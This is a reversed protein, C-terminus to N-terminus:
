PRVFVFYALAGAVIAAFSALGVIRGAQRTGVTYTMGAKVITNVGCAIGIGSVASAIAITQDGSMRSLSLTIADVDAIGSLAALLNLGTEGAYTTVLKALFSILAILAALKLATGLDFPSKLDLDPHESPRGRQLYLIAGGAILLVACAVGMPWILPIILAPNIASAIVVVRAVMVAGSLLIGSALLTSAPPNDKALKALTLTTATSSTLGGAMAAMAVGAQSGMIRIAIYGVFSIGAIIIAFLWIRAPNISGLPDVPKNPLLPLLLFSMALLILAARIELWTLTKLWTHLPRKLALILTVAVAASIAIQVNGLVTYAGLAFTLLAAVVGTVSFNREEKAELWAFASFGAAFAIFAFGLFTTHTHQALVASIAGLLSSLGYTRLGATREGEAEERQQWGRELGVLLGIALAIALRQLLPDDIM